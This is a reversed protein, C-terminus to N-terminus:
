MRTLLSLTNNLASNFTCTTGDTFEMAAAYHYGLGLYGFYNPAMGFTVATAVATMIPYSVTLALADIGIGLGAVSGASAATTARGTYNVSIAEEALGQVLNIQNGTSSRSQRSATNTTYSTGSDVVTAAVLVRNYANWVNLLAATGGSASGGLGFDLQSSANSRTTGVYTGRSAAPGNTISANNLYIGNVLTLATGASRATDSTWDPGHSLRLTGSDNWVFWDNVKSAGIAAPSKTTDTTAVSLEAFTTATWTSGDWIPVISGTYPSYYITTKATQSSTMVPTATALTLRGQPTITGATSPSAWTGDGRWFTSSSASTGSNLNAVPLNGSVHTSLGIKGWSPATNVGGSILANGTAVGALKSLASTTSAYLLDGVAYTGTGTGGRTAALTGTWGLTLSTATLVATTPTGGLTMTVNTDDTKSLAAGGTIDTAALTGSVTHNANWDNLDVEVDANVTGSSVKAHTITLTM